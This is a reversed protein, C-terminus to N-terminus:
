SATWLSIRRLRTCRPLNRMPRIASKRTGAGPIGACARPRLDSVQPPVGPRVAATGGAGTRAGRGQPLGTTAVEAVVRPIRTTATM